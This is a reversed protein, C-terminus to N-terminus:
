LGRAAHQPAQVDRPQPRPLEEPHLAHRWRSVAPPPPPARAAAPGVPRSRGVRRTNRRGAAPGRRRVRQASGAREPRRSGCSRPHLGARRPAASQRCPHHRQGHGHAGRRRAPARRARCARPPIPLFAPSQPHQQWPPAQWLFSAGKYLCNIGMDICIKGNMHQCPMAATVFGAAALAFHGVRQSRHSRISGRRRSWWSPLPTQMVAGPHTAARAARSHRGSAFRSARSNPSGLCGANRRDSRLISHGLRATGLVTTKIPQMVARGAMQGRRHYVRRGIAVWASRHGGGGVRVYAVGVQVAKQGLASHRSQPACSCCASTRAHLNDAVAM